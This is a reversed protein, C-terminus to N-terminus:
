EVKFKSVGKILIDISEKNAGSITNVQTVAVNIQEAGSAMENMGNTIEQTVLELNKSEQIVQRSGLLMEKSGGKVTQTTENLQGIAELIQKSGENQEEMANRIHEEQDSVTKVGMDIAEFKNLVSETSKTIKDISDKIKKLVTSITKSQEGSNEALKRIEDAVVAFGKGAEGAHAAEIAANMSLLNTQSAINEMVANIELLGESERAIEQIDEAVGHLGTRGIESSAMLERVNGANNALTQSVSQINALMEEVAASSQSVSSSQHDVQNSLKDINVTIQEMTANTETVSASQNLVRGKISQINATIENVASATQNMNNSLENGIDFLAVSQNKITVVLERIKLLTGDFAGAMDGIEDKRHFDLQQTLDGEGISTFTKMMYKLPTSISRAILFAAGFIGLLMAASIIVSITLMKLVPATIISYPIGIGLAWPTNSQGTPVPASVFEYIGKMGSIAIRNSFRYLSGSEIAAMFDGLYPGALDTESETMSKGLRSPDFHGAVRGRNSFVMAVSGEYPKIDALGQQIRALAIDIGTVGVVKGNKKIPVAMSTILTNTGNIVYFYPEIITEKGSRLPIQYFDGAGSTMYGKVSELKPGEQANAWYSIFRGTEDTGPTNVYYADMGDLANPEWCTWIAAVEHNAKALQKLMLNYFFRRQAPDIDEYAEMSQALSRAVGFHIDLWLQIEAAENEALNTLESTTLAMIQKKAINLVTGLLIGIGSITLAIIMIILKIGIKM